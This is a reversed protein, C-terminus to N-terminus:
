NSEFYIKMRPLYSTDFNQHRMEAAVFPYRNDLQALTVKGLCYERIAGIRENVYDNDTNLELRDITAVVRARDEAPLAPNPVLLFTRFDLWFWGPTLTFPDLVDRHNGKRNNLRRRCLRFNDWEYAQAPVISKPVFHDVTSDEPRTTGSARFTWSASYACIGNYANLLDSLASRWYDNGRWETRSPNPVAALFVAGPARVKSGFDAPEAGMTVPILTVSWIVRCLIDM